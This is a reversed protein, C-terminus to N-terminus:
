SNNKIFSRVINPIPQDLSLFEDFYELQEPEKFDDLIQFEKSVSRYVLPYDEFFRESIPKDYLKIINHHGDHITMLALEDHVAAKKGELLFLVNQNSYIVLSTINKSQRDKRAYMLMQEAESVKLDKRVSSVAVICWLEETM